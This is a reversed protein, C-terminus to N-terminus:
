PATVVSDITVAEAPAGDGSDDATGRQAIETIVDLGDTIQGFVTYEPPLQSDAYVLFFQSGNSDPDGGRRAMAVTGATYVAGDVNELGFQYGPGGSGTGTPDGCQLVSLSGGTTLRHCETGDFYGQGALNVFSGVTCRAADAELAVTVPQGDITITATSATTPDAAPPAIGEVPETEVYLCDGDPAAAPEDDGSPLWWAGLAFVLAAVVVVSVAIALGM